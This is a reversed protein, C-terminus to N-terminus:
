QKWNGIINTRKGIVVEAWLDFSARNVRNSTSADYHWPNVTAKVGNPNGTVHETYNTAGKVPVTLLEVDDSPNTGLIEKHQTPRLHLGRFPIDSPQRASNQIGKVGFYTGLLNTTIVDHARNVQFKRDQTFVCGALEYFLPNMAAHYFYNENEAVATFPPRNSVQSNRQGVFREGKIPYDVLKANDPPYGGVDMKYSEISTELQHLEGNVRSLKYSRSVSASVPLLLSALIAMISIVVLLEILTFANWRGQLSRPPWRLESGFIDPEIRM